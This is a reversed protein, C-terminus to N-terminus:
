FLTFWFLFYLAYSVYCFFMKSEPYKSKHIHIYIDTCTCVCLCIYQFYIYSNCTPMHLSNFYLVFINYSNLDFSNLIIIVLAIYIQINGAMDQIVQPKLRSLSLSLIFFLVSSYVSFKPWNLQSCESLASYVM